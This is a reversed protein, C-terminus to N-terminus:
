SDEGRGRQLLHDGGALAEDPQQLVVEDVVEGASTSVTPRLHHLSHGLRQRAIHKSIHNTHRM